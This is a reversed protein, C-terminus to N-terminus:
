KQEKKRDAQLAAGVVPRLTGAHNLSRALIMQGEPSAILEPALVGTLGGAIAGPIGGERKGEYFGATGGLLAGSHAGFRGLARPIAADGLAKIQARNKVPILSSIRQDLDRAGPLVNHFEDTLAGYARRGTTVTSDRLEPNWRGHEENFGRRLDLLQRPTVQEPIPQGTAFSRGLTDSMGGLQQATGEANQRAAQGIADSIVSRAPALSATRNPITPSIPRAGITPQQPRILVGQATPVRGSLEPHASGSLYHPNVGPYDSIPAMPNGSRPEMPEEPNVRADFAMPHMRPNRSNAALPIEQAPAPLLARVPNPRVSAQDAMNEVQGSLDSIRGRAQNAITEPRVGTTEALAAAGPAKNFSRDFKGRIGLAKEAIAPAAAHAAEGLAAGGAGAMAGTGFDGGQAKNVLGSSLASTGIKAMPLAAKGLKPALSALKAAGMEEAQGPIMFQAADGVGKSVAQTTNAPTALQKVHELNAPAGFGLSSNTLFAPLHKRAFEDGTSMLSVASEGLGKGVDGAFSGFKQLTSQTGPGSAANALRAGTKVREGTAPDIQPSATAGMPQKIREGTAPDIQPM